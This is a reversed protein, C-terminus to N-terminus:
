NWNSLCGDAVVSSVPNRKRRWSTAYCSTPDRGRDLAIGVFWHALWPIMRASSRDQPPTDASCLRIAQKAGFLGVGEVILLEGLKEEVDHNKCRGPIMQPHDVGQQDM